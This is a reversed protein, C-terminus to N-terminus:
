SSSVVYIDDKNKSSRTQKAEAVSALGSVVFVRALSCAGFAKLPANAAATGDSQDMDGFRTRGYVLKHSRHHMRTQFQGKIKKAVRGAIDRLSRSLVICLPICECRFSSLSRGDRGRWLTHSRDLSRELKSRVIPNAGM